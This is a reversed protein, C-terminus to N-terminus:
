EYFIEHEAALDGLRARVVHRGPAPEFDAAPKDDITFSVRPDTPLAQLPPRQQSAPRDPDLVFRAGDVPYAISLGAPPAAAAADPLGRAHAWHGLAEPFAVRNRPDDSLHFGCIPSQDFNALRPNPLWELKRHPCYPGPRAGSLPCVERQSLTAPRDPATPEGYLAALAVFAARVLPAAGQMAMVGEMPSGDFNGAWAGVTFERTTGFALNDTYGRTTGTKLAVPFPLDMPASRGFMPRRADPDALVDFIQYAIEPSFVRQVVGGTSRKGLAETRSTDTAGPEDSGPLTPTARYSSVARTSVANGANGFAAFAATYESLLVEANGIALDPGYQDDAEDLTTLGALRLRSLLTEVGVRQLTHVAALNYSGALAERYRAMGHQRVDATYTETAEGPLVVDYALTAPTDGRELALAYVFPKLTSGPRRRLTTVNVAGHGKSDAYDNSGVMALIDGRRNDIVVLGAQTVARSGIDALHRRVAVELRSQLDLDLTSKLVGGRAAELPLTNILYDVFHQAHGTPRPPSLTLPVSEALERSERSLAGLAQMRALIHRQRGEAREPHLFPDYALPARPLASLFAAQAPSVAAATTAFYRQAASQVGFAGRGYYARNLYQELIASKSLARELRAAHVAQTWKGAWTRTNLGPEVLRVLQMSLTSAGYAPRLARLDLWAARLLAWPDVGSHEYFRHDEAALTASVLLPSIENLEAWERAEGEKSNSRWLARGNRDLVTLSAADKASLRSLPYDAVTVVARWGLWLAGLMGLAAAAIAVGRQLRRTSLFWARWNM